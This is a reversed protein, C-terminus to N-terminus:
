TSLLLGTLNPQRTHGSISRRRSSNPQRTHCSVFVVAGAVVTFLLPAARPDTETVTVPLCPVKIDELCAMDEKLVDFNHYADCDDVCVFTRSLRIVPARDVPRLRLLEERQWVRTYCGLSMVEADMEVTSRPVISGERKDSLLMYFSISRSFHQLQVMDAAYLAGPRRHLSTQRM